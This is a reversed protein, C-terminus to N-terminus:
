AVQTSTLVWGSKPTDIEEWSQKSGLLHNREQSHLPCTFTIHLGTQPTRLNCPCFPDEAKGIHHLWYKQLGREM